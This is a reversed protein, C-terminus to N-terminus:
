PLSHVYKDKIERRMNEGQFGSGRVDIQAVVFNKTSSLYWPWSM